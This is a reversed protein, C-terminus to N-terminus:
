GAVAGRLGLARGTLVRRSRSWVAESNPGQLVGRRLNARFWTKGRGGAGIVVGVGCSKM